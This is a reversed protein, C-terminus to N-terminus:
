SFILLDITCLIKTSNLFVALIEVANYHSFM